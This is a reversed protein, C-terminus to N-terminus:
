LFRDCCLRFIAMVHCLDNYLLTMMVHCYDDCFFYIEIAMLHCVGCTMLFTDYFFYIEILLCFGDTMLFSSRFFYIEILHFFGRCYRDCFFFIEIM